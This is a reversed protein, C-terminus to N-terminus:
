GAPLYRGSAIDVAYRATDHLDRDVLRIELQEDDRYASKSLKDLFGSLRAEPEGVRFSPSLGGEAAHLAVLLARDVRLGRALEKEGRLVLLCHDSRYDPFAAAVEPRPRPRLLELNEAPIRATSAAFRPPKADYRHTCWIRLVEGGEKNAGFFRNIMQILRRVPGTGHRLLQDFLDDVPDVSGALLAEGDRHEFLARRKRSVFWELRQELTEGNHASLDDRRELWAEPADDGRWLSHDLIPATRGRPDHRRAAEFLPGSGGEFASEWYRAPAGRGAKVEGCSRTGWLLFSLFGQLDRMTSHAGSAGCRGLLAALRTVAVDGLRAANRQLDCSARPCGQCPSSLRLVGELARQIVDPTLNNRMNLDLVLVRDDKPPDEERYAVPSLLQREVEKRWPREDDGAHLVQHLVGENIAVALGRGRRELAKEVAAIIEAETRENADLIVEVKAARLEAELHRLLHTKGDGPNGTIFIVRGAARERVFGDVPTPIHIDKMLAFDHHDACSGRGRYLSKVLDPKSQKTMVVIRLSPRSPERPEVAAAPADFLVRQAGEPEALEAQVTDPGERAVRDLVERRGIRASLWRDRWASAIVALPPLPRPRPKNLQLAERAGAFLELGYMMRKIGHRLLDEVPLGLHSLGDRAQRMQPSQGEGFLNNILRSEQRSISLRRLAAITERSLHATGRGETEGIEVWRLAGHERLDLRIRNYQSSKGYLSTTMLVCVSPDRSIPRGAMQSAIESIQGQYREALAASVEESAVAIAVLKGGLLDRYPQVAGCVNVELLRSALGVKRVERAAISLAKDVVSNAPFPDVETPIAELTRAALLLDALTSARKAVYLPQESAARWDIAGSDTRPLARQSNVEEGVAIKRQRTKLGEGRDIVASAAIGRLGAELAEGEAGALRQMLDDARLEARAATLAQLFCSRYAAWQGPRAALAERVSAFHWGIWRDRDGQQLTANALSAIGIVPANPRAANRVLLYLSRGPTPRYELSWTHRFYRWIELLPLGTLECRAQATAVQVVPRVLAELADLRETPPLRDADALAMALSHGDDIVDRISVRRGGYLRPAEMRRLFERVAPDALQRLRPRANHERRRRKVVHLPEGEAAQLAAPPCARLHDGAPSLEWGHHSLDAVLHCFAALAADNSASGYRRLAQELEDAGSSRGLMDAIARLAGISVDKPRLILPASLM